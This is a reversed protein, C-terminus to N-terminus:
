FMWLQAMLISLEKKKTSENGIGVEVLKTLVWVVAADVTLEVVRVLVTENPDAKQWTTAELANM